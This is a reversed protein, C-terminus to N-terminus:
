EESEKLKDALKKYFRDNAAKIKDKNNDRWAKKYARQALVIEREEASLKSIDTMNVGGTFINKKERSM